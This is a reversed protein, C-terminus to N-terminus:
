VRKQQAQIGNPGDYAPRRQNCLPFAFREHEAGIRWTQSPQCSRDIFVVLDAKGTIPDGSPKSSASM